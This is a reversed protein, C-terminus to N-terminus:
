SKPAEEKGSADGVPLGAHQIFLEKMQHLDVTSPAECMLDSAATTKPFAVIDRISEMGLTLAVIRDLGVAFGGHPPPGYSLAELLFGFKLKIEEEELGLLDFVKAQTDQRHIRISGSGLEWGNLVLDYARSGMEAPDGKLDWDDPATFPHHQSVYRPKGGDAPEADWEFMPFHTVWLFNWPGTCGQDAGDVEPIIGIMKAVFLRLAGLAKWCVDEQDAVFVLLDGEEAGMVEKLKAGSEDQCFKVISGAAGGELGPKWWAMGKAGYTKCVEELKKINGRSIAEAGGKVTLGMVRGGGEVISEFVKFGSHPVWPGADTLEMGFRTDPKDSGFREMAERWTLRPFPTPIDVGMADKFTEALVGEWAAFVDEEEVFSMEMDLQTFEPQRDARLDEDRFCRAVQFYRDMGSVMLLQKFIQPSQPLAYFEGAHVRSPVLYDRAGEPTAKTLIPTEVEAFDRKLFANRMAGIFKSRHMLARQMDPRRLDLYRYQLRLEVATDLKEEIEFPPTKSGSLKNVTAARLEILGTPMKDNPAERKAVIGTVSICDERALKVEAELDEPLVVQTIGYRDRLDIFYIGGLNRRQQVWGNLIVETGAHEERLEGCNHTRRWSAGVETATM